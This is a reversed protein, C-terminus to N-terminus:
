LLPSSRRIPFSPKTRDGLNTEVRGETPSTKVVRQIHPWFIGHKVWVGEIKMDGPASITMTVRGLLKFRDNDFIPNDFKIEDRDYLAELRGAGLVLAQMAFPKGDADKGSPPTMVRVDYRVFLESVVAPSFYFIPKGCFGSDTFLDLPTLGQKAAAAFIADAADMTIARVSAADLGPIRASLLALTAADPAALTAWLGPPVVSAAPAPPAVPASAAPADPAPVSSLPPLGAGNFGGSEGLLANVRAAPGAQARVPAAGAALGLALLALTRPFPAPNMM